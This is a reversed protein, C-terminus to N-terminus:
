IPGCTAGRAAIATAAGHPLRADARGRRLHGQYDDRDRRAAAAPVLRGSRRRSPDRHRALLRGRFQRSTAELLPTNRDTLTTWNSLALVIAMFNGLTAFIFLSAYSETEQFHGAVAFGVFFGVNM